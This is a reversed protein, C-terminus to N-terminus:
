LYLGTKGCQWVHQQRRQQKPPIGHDRPMGQVTEKNKSITNARKVSTDHNQVAEIPRGKTGVKTIGKSLNVSEAM